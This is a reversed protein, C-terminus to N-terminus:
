SKQRDYQGIYKLLSSYKHVYDVVSINGKGFQDFEVQKQDKLAECCITTPISTPFKGIVYQKQFVQLFDVWGILRRRDVPKRENISLHAILVIRSRLEVSGKLKFTALSM